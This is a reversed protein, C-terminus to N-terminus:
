SIRFIELDTRELFRSTNKFNRLIDLDNHGEQPVGVVQELNVFLQHVNPDHHAFGLKEFGPKPLGQFIRLSSGQSHPQRQNGGDQM